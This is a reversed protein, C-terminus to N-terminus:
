LQIFWTNPRNMDLLFLVRASTVPSLQETISLRLNYVPWRMNIDSSRTTGESNMNSTIISMIIARHRKNDNKREKKKYVVDVWAVEFQIAAFSFYWVRFEAAIFHVNNLIGNFGNYLVYFSENTQQQIENYQQQTLSRYLSHPVVIRLHFFFTRQLCTMCFRKPTPYNLIHKVTLGRDWYSSIIWIMLWLDIFRHHGREIRIMTESQLSRGKFNSLRLSSNSVLNLLFINTVTRMRRNQSLTVIVLINGVVSLIFIISYLPILVESGFGQVSSNIPSSTTIASINSKILRASINAQHYVTDYLAVDQSAVTNKPFPTTM